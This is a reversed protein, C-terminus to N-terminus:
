LISGIDIHKEFHEKLLAYNKEKEVAMDQNPLSFGELGIMSFWKALVPSFDFFGHIYTGAIRGDDSVCGDTEDCLVGNRSKIKLLPSGSTLRTFGMHIEYGKGSAKDWEFDSITTTKPDKLVTEVPLLGLGMTRGPSAEVGQPDDVFQGLIQYGGCVGLIHGGRDRYEKLPSGFRKKIWELDARTNKSGPIIIAQFRSLDRPQDIFLLQLGEIRSLAHFDTFNSIHPLRVVAIQPSKPDLAKLNSINEIEVSDEADIRFHSYWPLVGFVKKGTQKELWEAGDRFLDIDGRFRNIIFGKVRDRFADPLCALTGVIQAFVGGRHIDATLVVHADAYEAMAFNVIDNPMLNVEACSGAGELVIREYRESLRDFARCAEDWYFSKDTHYSMATHNGQALGNLVVQSQKEGTPKLLIPNMDVHPVVRAAEAQVIQARGMELGEPTIGSNNSMNQAKFPAVKEKRDSLCRCIAAGIISKGVDSGTGLVAINKKM